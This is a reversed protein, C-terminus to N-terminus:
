EVVPAPGLHPFEGFLQPDGVDGARCAIMGLCSIEVVGQSVTGRTEDRRKIGVMRRGLVEQLFCQSIEVILSQREDLRGLVVVVEVRKLMALSHGVALDPVLLREEVLHNLEALIAPVRREEAAATSNKAALREVINAAERDACQRLIDM